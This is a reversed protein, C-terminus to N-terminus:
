LVLIQYESEGSIVLLILCSPKEIVKLVLNTVEEIDTERGGDKV